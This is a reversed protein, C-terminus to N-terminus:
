RKWFGELEKGSSPCRSAAGNTPGPRTATRGTRRPLVAGGLPRRSRPSRADRPMALDFPQRFSLGASDGVVWAVSAFISIGEGLELLPEAGVPFRRAASSWRAPRPFTACGSPTARSITTSRERGSSRIGSRTAHESTKSEAAQDEAEYAEDDRLRIRDPFQAPHRQSADPAAPPRATSGPKTPSNSASGGARSGAAGRMRRHRGRGPSARGMDWLKPEFRGRGDGAARRSNVLEVDHQEGNTSATM